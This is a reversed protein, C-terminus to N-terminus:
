FDEFKKNPMEQKEAEKLKNGSSDRLFVASQTDGNLAKLIQSLLIAEQFNLRGLPLGQAGTPLLEEPVECALLEELSKKFPMRKRLRKLRKNSNVKDM